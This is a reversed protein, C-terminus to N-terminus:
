KEKQGTANYSYGSITPRTNTTSIKPSSFKQIERIVLVIEEDTFKEGPDNFEDEALNISSDPTLGRSTRQKLNRIQPAERGENEGNEWRPTINKQKGNRGTSPASDFEGNHRLTVSRFSLCCYM